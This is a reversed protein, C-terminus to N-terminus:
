PELPVLWNEFFKALDDWDVDGDPEFDAGLCWNPEHCDTSLWFQIFLAFDSFDVYDDGNMDGFLVEPITQNIWDAYSSVRVADMYDPDPDNPDGKDRYWSEEYIIYNPDGSHGPEYHVEVARTIGAVKWFDGVKIFWGGGSDFAAPISEYTTPTGEYLGDFDAIIIDSIMGVMNSNPEVEDIKNTGIRLTTNSSNDWDYGYTIGDTQLIEDRGNGFGGIVINKNIENTTDYVDVFEALNAGALKVLRLDATDHEWIQVATYAKGDINVKKGVGGGPHRATLVCNSSIAVCSGNFWWRGIVNEHPRDTWTALNSEGDPHLIVAPAAAALCFLFFLAVLITRMGCWFWTCYFREKTRPKLINDRWRILSKLPIYKM